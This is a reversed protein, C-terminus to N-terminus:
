AANRVSLILNGAQLRRESYAIIKDITNHAALDFTPDQELGFEKSIMSIIELQKVSDLGLESELDVNIDLIEIPYSTLEQYIKLIRERIDASNHPPAMPTQAILPMPSPTSPPTPSSTPVPVQAMLPTAANVIPPAASIRQEAYAMIKGITNHASIDFTPDQALGFEKSIMSIIEIQKVSDLGLESELDANLELIEVPYSTLEQYIKLIRDRSGLDSAPQRTIQAPASIPQPRAVSQSIVPVPAEPLRLHRYGELNSRILNTLAHRETCCEHFEVGGQRHLVQVAAGFRVPRTLHQALCLTLDDDQNYYRGEIPSYVQKAPPSLKMRKIANHFHASAFQLHRSHFPFPSKLISANISLAKCVDLFANIAKNSGSVVNQEPGNECALSIDPTGLYDLLAVTKPKSCQIAVMLGPEAFTQIAKTRHCVINLGTRFDFAGAAALAAIEGLSHGMLVDFAIGKLELAKYAFYSSLYIACQAMEFDTEINLPPQQTQGPILTVYDGFDKGFQARIISAAVTLESSLDPLRTLLSDFSRSNVSGQGPFLAVANNLKFM